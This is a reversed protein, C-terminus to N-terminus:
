RIVEKRDKVKLCFPARAKGGREDLELSPHNCVHAINRQAKFNDKIKGTIDMCTSVISEVVNCEQHMVDITHMLILAQAYPIEWLTCIHTWNHEEGYEEYEDGERNLVLKSLNKITELRSLCKPPGKKIIIEKRFSDKQTIFLHKLPLWRRHCDFYSIKGGSTLYFCDTDAHCILCTLRGHVSWGAFINYAMFNHISWLYTALTHIEAEQSDYSEVENWLEKLENILPKLMVNLKQGPHDPGPIILCLFMFEYKMCLSPPLNYLIAFVPWCSYSTTNDDSPTFGDTALGIRVNRTYQVFEPDFNNLVKWADLDSPHVMMEKNEREGDKHWRM